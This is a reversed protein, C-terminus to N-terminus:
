ISPQTLRAPSAMRNKLQEASTVAWGPLLKITPAGFGEIWAACSERYM